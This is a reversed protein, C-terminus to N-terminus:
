PSTNAAVECSMKVIRYIPIRHHPFRVIGILNDFNEKWVHELFKNNQVNRLILNVLKDFYLLMKEFHQRYKEEKVEDESMMKVDLM